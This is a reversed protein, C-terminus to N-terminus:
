LKRVGCGCRFLLLVRIFLIVSPRIKITAFSQFLSSNTTGLHELANEALDSM